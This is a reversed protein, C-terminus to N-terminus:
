VAMSRYLTKYATISDQIDFNTVARQRARDGLRAREASSLRMLKLCAQALASADRPPVVAGTEGVIWGSDGVDTVVCPVGCAMAELVTNSFGEGFVSASVLVDLAALIPQVDSRYGLLHVRERLRSAGVQQLLERNAADVNPGALLFHVHPHAAAIERAAQLFVGFGKMPDYRAIMGVLLDEDQLQLESRIRARALSDPRFRESDVGNPILRWFRPRYGLERHAAEGARSNVVVGQPYRSLLACTRVVFGSLPRYRGFEMNSNRINWLIVPVHALKGALLGLLDAHYLWTQLIHPRAQRLISVLQLLGKLTPRGPRMELSTVPIGLARIQAGIAGLPILSVVQNDFEKPDLQGVLQYLMREAGGVDLGTILHV